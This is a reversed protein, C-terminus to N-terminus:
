GSPHRRPVRDWQKAIRALLAEEIMMMIMLPLAILYKM